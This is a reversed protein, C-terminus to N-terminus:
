LLKGIIRFFALNQSFIYGVKKGKGNGPIIRLAAKKAAGYNTYKHESHWHLTQGITWFATAGGM